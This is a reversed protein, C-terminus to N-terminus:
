FKLEVLVPLHDSALSPNPRGNPQLLSIEGVETLIKVDDPEFRSLLAPRLLVQDFVNWFYVVHEAKEYYFTGPPGDSRDGFHAWMPNYFFEYDRAQVTRSGRLATEKSMVAHLGGAAVMGAEFPNVNLDGFVATRSHGVSTEEKAIARSLEGCEVKLSEESFHLRSPLHAGVLLIDQRAPLSLRRITIRSSEFVPRLFSAQFAAFITIRDCLGPCFHYHPKTRNLSSLITALPTRCEALILVDVSHLEALDAVLDHLPKGQINWFLFRPM